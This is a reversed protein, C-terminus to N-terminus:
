FDKVFDPILSPYSEFADTFTMRSHSSLNDAKAIYIEKNASGYESVFILTSNNVKRLHEIMFGKQTWNLTFDTQKKFDAGSFSVSCIETSIKGSITRSQLFYVRDATAACDTYNAGPLPPLLQIPNGGSANINYITFSGEATKQSFFILKGDTTFEPEKIELGSQFLVTKNGMTDLVLLQYQDITKDIVCILRADLSLCPDAPANLDILFRSVGNLRAYGITKGAKIYVMRQSAVYPATANAVLLVSDRGKNLSQSFIGKNGSVSTSQYIMLSDSAVRPPEPEDNTVDKTCSALLFIVSIQLVTKIM